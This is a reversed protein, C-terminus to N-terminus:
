PNMTVNSASIGILKNMCHAPTHRMYPRGLILLLKLYSVISTMISTCSVEMFTFYAWLMEAYCWAESRGRRRARRRAGKSEGVQAPMVLLSLFLQVGKLDNSPTKPGSRKNFNSSKILKWFRGFSGLSFRFVRYLLLFMIAPAALM